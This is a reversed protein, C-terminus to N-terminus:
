SHQPVTEPEPPVMGNEMGWRVAQPRREVGMKRYASRICSKLTNISIFSREAIEANTFGRTILAVVEAERATLGATKGPWAGTAALSETTRADPEGSPATVHRGAGVAELSDVLESVFMAKDLYGSCGKALAKDVLDRHTNWTYVVVRGASPDSLVEDIDTHDVQALAFTDYLTIDVTASGTTGVDVEVVEIRDRFPALMARLGAVVVEYDNLLRLRLPRGPIRPPVSEGQECQRAYM